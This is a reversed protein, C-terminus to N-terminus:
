RPEGGQFVAVGLLMAPVAICAVQVLWGILCVAFARATSTYDLAQRVAVVMAALMWVGTVVMVFPGLLPVAGAVRLIGPSASFGTTRLLQGLTAHTEPTPLLKAGIFWTLVAWLFWGILAGLISAVIVFTEGGAAGIGAALSALVVVGLAQGTAGGDAEVDEYVQADLKAARIMRDIMSM